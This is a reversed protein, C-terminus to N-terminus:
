YRDSGNVHLFRPLTDSEPLKRGGLEPFPPRKVADEISTRQCRGSDPKVKVGIRLDHLKRAGAASLKLNPHVTQGPVGKVGVFRRNKPRRQRQRKGPPLTVAPNRHVKRGVVM